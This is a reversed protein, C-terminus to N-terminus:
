PPGCAEDAGLHALLACYCDVGGQDRKADHGALWQAPSVGYGLGPPPAGLFVPERMCSTHGDLVWDRVAAQLPVDAVTSPLAGVRDPVAAAAVEWGDAHRRSQPFVHDWRGLLDPQEFGLSTYAARTARAAAIESCAGSRRADDVYTGAHVCRRVPFHYREPYAGYTSSGLLFGIQTPVQPYQAAPRRETARYPLTAEIARLRPLSTDDPLEVRALDDGEYLLTSLEGWTAVKAPQREPPPSADGGSRQAWAREWMQVYAEAGNQLSAVTDSAAEDDRAIARLEVYLQPLLGIHALGRQSVESGVSPVIAACPRDGYYPPRLMGTPQPQNIFGNLDSGFATALGDAEFASAFLGAGMSTGMCDASELGRLFLPTSLADDGGDSPAHRRIEDDGPRIGVVGGRAQIRAATAEPVNLERTILDWEMPFAHSLYLPTEPPLHRDLDEFAEWSLHSADIPMGRSALVDALVRGRDSLGYPNRVVNAAGYPDARLAQIAERKTRGGVTVYEDVYARWMHKPLAYPRYGSPAFLRGVGLILPPMRSKKSADAWCKPYAASYDEEYKWRELDKVSCGGVTLERWKQSHALSSSIWAAGGFPSDTQHVVQLTSVEDLADLYANLSQPTDLGDASRFQGGGILESPGFLDSVEISLVIALKGAEITDRAEQPEDVIAAWESNSAAWALAADYQRKVADMDNCLSPNKRQTSRPTLSRCALNSHVLSVVVLNLGAVGDDFAATMNAAYDGYFSRMAASIDSHQEAEVHHLLPLGDHALRLWGEWAQQHAISDSTPWGLWHPLTPDDSVGPAAHRVRVDDSREDGLGRKSLWTAIPNSRLGTFQAHSKHPVNKAKVSTGCAGLAVSPIGQASGYYWRRAHELEAWQHLHLDALGPLGRPPEAVEPPPAETPQPPELEGARALSLLTVLHM